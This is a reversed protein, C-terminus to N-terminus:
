PPQRSAAGVGACRGSDAAGSYTAWWGAVRLPDEVFLRSAGPVEFGGRRPVEFAQVGDGLLFSWLGDRYPGLTWFLATGARRFAATM